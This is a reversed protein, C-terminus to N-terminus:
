IQMQHVLQNLNEALEALHESSASVENMSSDIQQVAASTEEVGAASEQSVSAVEDILTNMEGSNAYIKNMIGTMRQNMKDTNGILEVIKRLAEDTSQVQLTGQEVEKYGNQLSDGVNKAETQVNEVVQTIDSVSDSVQEALKRVEDAVVAFGKGQEGARAAEISANLALLNTQDAVSQVVEVMKTIEVTQQDLREMKMVADQIIQEIKNMQETSAAMRQTSELAMDKINRSSEEIEAGYSNSEEIQKAFSDMQAALDGASSAQTESGSALEQMTAAVQQSGSTVEGASQLLEESNAALSESAQSMEHVMRILQLQTANLAHGLQGIEDKMRVNLPESRLDGDAIEQLRDRMLNMPRAISQSTAWAILLSLVIVVVSLVTVIMVSRNGSEIISHGIEMIENEGFEVGETYSQILDDTLPELLGLNAIATERNGNRAQEIVETRMRNTWENAMNVKEVITDTPYYEVLAQESAESVESLEEFEIATAESGTLLYNQALGYRRLLNSTLEETQLLTPLTDDIIERTERNSRFASTVALSSIIAVLLIGLGFGSMMRALVSKFQFRKKM